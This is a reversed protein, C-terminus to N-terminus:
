LQVQVQVQHTLPDLDDLQRYRPLFSYSIYIDGKTESIAIWNGNLVLWHVDRFLKRM